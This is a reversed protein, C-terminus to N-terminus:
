AGACCHPARGACALGGAGVAIRTADRAGAIGLPRPGPGGPGDLRGRRGGAVRGERPQTTALLGPVVGAALDPRGRVLVDLAALRHSIARDSRATTAAISWIPSIRELLGKWHAPPAVALDRLPKGTRELG